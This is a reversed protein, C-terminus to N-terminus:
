SSFFIGEKGQYAGLSILHKLSAIPDKPLSTFDVEEGWSQSVYNQGFDILSIGGEEGKVTEAGGIGAFARTLYEETIRTGPIRIVEEKTPTPEPTQTPEPTLTPKPKVLTPTQEPPSTFSPTLSPKEPQSSPNRDAGGKNESRCGSLM